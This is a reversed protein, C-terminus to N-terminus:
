EALVVEETLFADEFGERELGLDLKHGELIAALLLRVVANECALPFDARGPRAGRLLAAGIEEELKGIRALRVRHDAVEESVRATGRDEPSASGSPGPALRPRERRLSISRADDPSGYLM